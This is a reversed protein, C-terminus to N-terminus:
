PKLSSLFWLFHCPKKKRKLQSMERAKLKQIKLKNKKLKFRFMVAKREEKKKAKPCIKSQIKHKSPAPCSPSFIKIELVTKHFKTKKSIQPLM